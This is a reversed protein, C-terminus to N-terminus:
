SKGHPDQLLLASAARAYKREGFGKEPALICTIRVPTILLDM